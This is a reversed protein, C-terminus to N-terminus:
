FMSDLIAEGSNALKHEESITATYILTTAPNTHRCFIRVKELDGTARLINTAGTHRLSHPTFSRDTLGIAKLAESIITYITRTGIRGGQSNNSESTFLPEQPSAGPRTNLYEKLPGYTKDTIIVFDDKSDRGKGHVMMVRQSGEPTTKYTIDEINARTIEIVRLGTRVSLNVLAYDRLNTKRMHDLLETVQSQTLPRRRFEQKRKPSKIGRSVNPYYKNAETWEYFGRVSTIYSGVTLTRKGKKLLDEKYEIIQPRAINALNYGKSQVWTLYQRLTRRYLDRSNQKVDKSQVFSEVLDTLSVYEAVQDPHKVVVEMKINVKVSVFIINKLNPYTLYPYLLWKSKIWM